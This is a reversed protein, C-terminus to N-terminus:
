NLPSNEMKGAKYVCPKGGTEVSCLTKYLTKSQEGAHYALKNEKVNNCDGLAYISDQGEVQLFQNVKLSGNEEM